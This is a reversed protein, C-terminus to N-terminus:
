SGRAKEMAISRELAELAASEFAELAALEAAKAMKVAELIAATVLEADEGAAELKLADQAKHISRIAAQRVADARFLAQEATKLIQKAQGM